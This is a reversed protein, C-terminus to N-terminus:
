RAAGRQTLVCVFRRTLTVGAHQGHREWDKTSTSGASPDVQVLGMNQETQDVATHYM